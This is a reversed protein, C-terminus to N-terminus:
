PCICPAAGVVPNGGAAICAIEGLDISCRTTPEKTTPEKKFITVKESIYIPPGCDNLFMKLEQSTNLLSGPILFNCYVRDEFGQFNCLRAETEGLFATYVWDEANGNSAEESGPFGSPKKVYVNLVLLDPDVEFTMLTMEEQEFQGCREDELELSFNQIDQVAVCGSFESTKDGTTATSTIFQGPTVGSAMTALFSVNGAGDTNQVTSGIYTKGEGHASPTDCVENAYFHIVFNTNPLGDMIEGTITLLGPTSSASNLIPFNMLDNPGLDIDGPDNPTFMASDGATLNIGQEVNSHISNHSILTTDADMGFVMVGARTNFAILNAKQISGGITNQTSTDAISIGHKGNGLDATGFYDTGVFNGAILNQSGRVYIGDANNGSVLNREAIDSNGDGNTGIQNLYADDSIEIGVANGLASSGSIDTGIINGAVINSHTTAGRIGIGRQANGSILNGEDSDNSGDSNTGIINASAGASLYVAGYLGSGGHMNPIAATGSIDTGIKNGAVTNFGSGLLWIGIRGNGSILNGELYDVTGDGDTGIRNGSSSKVITIGDQLNGLSATGTANTGIYNGAIVNNDGAIGIGANGNMGLGNGSIINTEAADGVGDGNTGIINSNGDVNITIGDFMNGLANMGTSDVGIFNGSVICNFSALFIGVNHNGSIVNAELSDSVGDGNTGILNLDGSVTIGPGVNGIATTGDFNTGIYNGAIVNHISNTNVIRVGADSNGSIVNGELADSVGDGNTGIINSSAGATIYIGFRNPMATTGAMNTGIFNGAIMNYNSSGEIIIGDFDSDSIVNPKGEGSPGIGVTNNSSNSIRIGESNGMPSNGDLSTGILNGSIHNNNSGGIRVGQGGNTNIWNWGEMVGTGSVTGILNDHAGGGIFVAGFENFRFYNGAVFNNIANQGHIQLGTGNNNVRNIQSGDGVDSPLLGIRNYKATGNIALIYVGRPFNRIELGQIINYSSNRIFIGASCNEGCLSGDIIVVAEGNIHTNSAKLIPLDSALNIQGINDFTILSVDDSINAEQLAARLTCENNITECIGDGTNIDTEDGSSNVVLSTACASGFLCIFALYLVSITKKV